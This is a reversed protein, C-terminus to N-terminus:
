LGLCVSTLQLAILMARQFRLSCQLGSVVMYMPDFIDLLGFVGSYPVFYHQSVDFSPLHHLFFSRPILSLGCVVSGARLLREVREFDPLSM